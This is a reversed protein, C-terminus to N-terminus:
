PNLCNYDGPQGPGSFCGLFLRMDDQDVDSDGDLKAGACNPDSQPITSGSLCVQMRALDSQDVDGDLDFDGPVPPPTVTLEITVTRPNVMAWPDSVAIIGTYQGPELTGTSYDISIDDAEGNSTGLDPTVSLWSVNDTIRYNLSGYAPWVMAGVTFTDSPLTTQYAVQKTLVISTEAGNIGIRPPSAGLTIDYRRSEGAVALGYAYSGPTLGSKTASVTYNTGAGTAPLLSVMYYGNGDTKSVPRSGITVSADDVPLATPRNWIQGWVTGETATAPSRWPMSPTAVPMTFLNQAVYPYWTWDNAWGDSDDCIDEIAKTAYYSYSATGDAGQNLAYSMQTVSNPMTNLYTAQGAYLHRGNRWGVAANVWSRFMSAENSCHERKYNMPITADLWAMDMWYKWNQFYIYATSSTFNGSYSGAALVDATLRLPQRSSPMNPIEARCRRILEDITRRRFDSWQSDSTSPVDSRNYIRQFRKLSSNYYNNDAPYGGDTQTYRIYDWNIGDIPYRTVLERVISILYDQVEPSGPDLMFYWSGPDAPNPKVPKAGTGIDDRPVTIWEPHAALLTNGAPPWEDCVRYTVLWAHVELGQAHAQQCLYSLPDFGTAADTAKPIYDSTWYAGHGGGVNDQYAMVEAIIANYNGQVAYGVMQNVQSSNKFGVHFADAWTGRFSTQGWATTAGLVLGAGAMLTSIMRFITHKTM